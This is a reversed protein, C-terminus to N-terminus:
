VFFELEISCDGTISWTPARRLEKLMTEFGFSTHNSRMFLLNSSKSLWPFHVTSYKITRGNLQAQWADEVTDFLEDMSNTNLAVPIAGDLEKFRTMVTTASVDDVVAVSSSRSTISIVSATSSRSETSSTSRRKSKSVSQSKRRKKSQTRHFEEQLFSESLKEGKKVHNHEVKDMQYPYLQRDSRDRFSRPPNGNFFDDHASGNVSRCSKNTPRRHPKSVTAVPEKGYRQDYGRWVLYGQDNRSYSVIYKVSDVPDPYELKTKGSKYSICFPPVEGEYMEEAEGLVTAINYTPSLVDEARPTPRFIESTDDDTSARPRREAATEFIDEFDGLPRKADQLEDIDTVSDNTSLGIDHCAADFAASRGTATIEGLDDEPESDSICRSPPTPSRQNISTFRTPQVTQLSDDETSPMISLALMPRDWFKYIRLEPFERRIRERLARAFSTQEDDYHNYYIHVDFGGRIGNDLGSTFKSYAPSLVGTQPTEISKDPQQTEPLPQLNEYGALPWPYTYKAPDM